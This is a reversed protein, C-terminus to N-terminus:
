SSLVNLVNRAIEASFWTGINLAKRRFLVSCFTSSTSLERSNLALAAVDRQVIRKHYEPLSTCVLIVGFYSRFAEFSHSVRTKEVDM